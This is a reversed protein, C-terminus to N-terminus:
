NVQHIVLRLVRDIRQVIGLDAAQGIRRNVVPQDQFRAAEGGELLPVIRQVQDRHVLIGVGAAQAGVNIPFAAIPIHGPLFGFFKQSGAGTIGRRQVM